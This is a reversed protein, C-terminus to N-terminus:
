GEKARRIIEEPSMGDFEAYTDKVAVDFFENADFSTFALPQKQSSKRGRKKGPASNEPEAQAKATQEARYEAQAARAAAPTQIGKEQWGTLVKNMYAFGPKGTADVTQEYAEQLLAASYGAQKWANVFREETTSFKRTGIGMLRRIPAEYAIRADEAAIYDLLEAEDVINQAYLEEARKCVYPIAGKGRDACHQFLTMIYPVSLRYGESLYVLRGCEYGTFLKGAIRECEHILTNLEERKDLLTELEKGEYRPKGDAHLIVTERPPLPTKPQATTVPPAADAIPAAPAAKKAAKIPIQRDRLIGSGRWFSLAAGIEQESVGLRGALVAPRFDTRTEEEAALLLLLKWETESATALREMAAYPLSFVRSGYQLEIESKHKM